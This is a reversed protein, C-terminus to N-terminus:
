ELPRPTSTEADLEDLAHRLRDRARHRAVNLRVQERRDDPPPQDDLLDLLHARDTPRLRQLARGTREVDLRDLVVREVDESCDAEPLEDVLLPRIHRHDDISLNIAVRVSWRTVASQPTVSAAPPTVDDASWGLANRRVAREIATQTLDQASDARVGRRRLVASVDCYVLGWDITDGAVERGNAPLSTPDPV